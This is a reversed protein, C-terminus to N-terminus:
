NASEKNGKLIIASTTLDNTGTKGKNRNNKEFHGYRYRLCNGLSIQRKHNFKIQKLCRLLFSFLEVIFNLFNFVDVVNHVLGLIGFLHTMM